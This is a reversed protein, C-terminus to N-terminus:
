DDQKKILATVLLYVGTFVILLSILDMLTIGDNPNFYYITFMEFYPPAPMIIMAMGLTIMLTGIIGVLSKRLREQFIYKKSIKSDLPTQNLLFEFNNLMDMRDQGTDIDKFAQLSVSPSEDIAQNIKRQIAKARDRNIVGQKLLTVLEDAKQELLAAEDAHEKYDM